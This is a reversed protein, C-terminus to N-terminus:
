KIKVKVCNTYIDDTTDDEHFTHDFEFANSDLYKTIGKYYHHLKTHSSSQYILNRYLYVMLKINVIM